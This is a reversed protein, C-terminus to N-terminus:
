QVKVPEVEKSKLAVDKTVEELRLRDMKELPLSLFLEIRRYIEMGVKRFVARKRENDGEVHAPDQSGWHGLIPQGPWVPCSERASDCVTIIFDFTQGKFEDWSKSQAGESDIKITKLFDITLPNVNGAPHSGASFSEFRGKGLVKMIYEAMISRASNGTCLFLIKFRKNDNM